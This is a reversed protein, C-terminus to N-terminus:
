IELPPRTVPKLNFKDFIAVIEDYELEEKKLLEEAFYDLLDRKQSLIQTVEDICDKLIKQIDHDIVEKTKESPNFSNQHINGYTFDGVLGSHGMGYSQVMRSAVHIANFFDSGPGGGVGQSTTGFKVKEAAYAAVMVKIDAMLEEKTPCYLEEIPRRAVMGLSGKRPIITAKIVDDTPHLLYGIIAHGAEHYATWRKEKETMTINSKMGFVVRDYAASLDKMNLTDRSDRAAILGAERTMSEIESPSFSLTKRALISANVDSAHKIKKLYFKFILEREKLNPRNVHIKRDFRGARLLASDLNSETVNTAAFIVINNETKRLGDMETLFQNITANSDQLVAANIGGWQRPSAFSDIEDIFILCGGEVEALARAQKFLGKVKSIGHGVISSKFESGSMALLPLGCETAIAKALYTKGCGPPGMMLVGKIIKGGIAKVLHRDKLLKVMEWAEKKADEMGIVEDWKVHVKAREHKGKGFGGGLLFYYQMWLMIPVSVLHVIVFMPLLLSMQAAIMRQSFPESAFFQQFCYKVFFISAIVTAILFLVGLINLWYVRIFSYFKKFM